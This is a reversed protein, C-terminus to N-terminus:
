DKGNDSGISIRSENEDPIYESGAIARVEDPVPHGLCGAFHVLFAALTAMNENTKIHQNSRTRRGAQWCPEIELAKVAARIMGDGIPVHFEPFKENAKATVEKLSLGVKSFAEGHELLWDELKRAEQRSLKRGHAM